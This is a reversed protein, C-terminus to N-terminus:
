VLGEAYETQLKEVQYYLYNIKADLVFKESFNPIISNLYEETVLDAQRDKENENYFFNIVRKNKVKRGISTITIKETVVRVNDETKIEYM